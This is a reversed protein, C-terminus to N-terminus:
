KSLIRVRSGEVLPESSEVIVSEQQFLGAGIAAAHENANVVTVDRRSAYFANGLPGKREEIVYVYTGSQDKHIAANSIILAGDKGKKRIKVEARDGNALSQDQLLITLRDTQRGDSVDQELGAIEGEVIRSNQGPLRVETTEGITLADAVETPIQLDLQYGM